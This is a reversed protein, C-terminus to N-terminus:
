ITNYSVMEIDLARTSDQHHHQGLGYNCHWDFAELGFCSSLLRLMLGIFSEYDRLIFEIRWCNGVRSRGNSATYTCGAAAWDLMSHVFSWTM